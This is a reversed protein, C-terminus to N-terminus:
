LTSSSIQSDETVYYIAHKYLASLIVYYLAITIYFQYLIHLYM